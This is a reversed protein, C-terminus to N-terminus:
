NGGRRYLTMVLEIIFMNVIRRKEKDLINKGLLFHLLM